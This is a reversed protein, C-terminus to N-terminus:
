FARVARVGFTNSKSSQTQNGGSFFVLWAFTVDWESSSWYNSGTFGGVNGITTSGPGIKRYMEFLEDRSPLFWDNYGNLSYNDAIRAAIGAETCWTVIDGTNQAGTGIASGDAGIILTGECGWLAGPSFPIVQDVPAAELGHAGGDTVYFVWGGAPGTDGIAYTTVPIVAPYFYGMVDALSDAGGFWTSVSIDQGGSACLYCTAIIGANALNSNVTSNYNLFSANPEPQLYPWVRIHGKGGPVVTFNASIAVPEGGPSACGTDASHGQPTLTANSGHVYYNLVTGPNDGQSPPAPIAERTDFIRCPVVPTFVLDSTLSGLAETGTVGELQVPANRGQLIARVADYSTANQIDALQADSAGNLAATFEREWGESVGLQAEWIAVIATITSYRDAAIATGMFGVLLLPIACRQLISITKM